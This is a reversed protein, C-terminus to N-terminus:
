SGQLTKVLYMVKLLVWILYCVPSIHYLHKKIQCLCIELVYKKDKMKFHINSHLYKENIQLSPIREM